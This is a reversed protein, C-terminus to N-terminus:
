QGIEAVSDTAPWRSFALVLGVIFLGVYPLFVFLSPAPNIGAKRHMKWLPVILLVGLVVQGVPDGILKDEM